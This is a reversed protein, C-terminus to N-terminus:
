VSYFWRLLKQTLRGPLIRSVRAFATQVFGGTLTRFPPRHSRVLRCLVRGLKRPDSGHTEDKEVSIMTREFSAAYEPHSASVSSVKRSATFGTRFDGPEVVCVTIGFRRIEVALAESFGEVAFKSASYYGQYPVAVVGAISSINIIKGSRRERMYPLVCACVNTMGFFNTEMQWRKEEDTALELAGSIGAGANNILVDIRGTVAIVKEIASRVSSTDTVDMRLMNVGDERREEQVNRGTGYVTHGASVLMGSAVKGFGSTAGTILIVDSDKVASIKADFIIFLTVSIHRFQLFIVFQACHM